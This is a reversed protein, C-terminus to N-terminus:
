NNELPKNKIKCRVVVRSEGDLTCTFLTLDWNGSLLEDMKDGRIKEIDAVEYIFHNNSMDVFEVRDGRDLRYLYGFHAKYNHALIIMNNEYISGKFRAPSIRILPYSWESMIPLDLSLKEIKLYGIYDYGNIQKIPMEMKPNDIYRNQQNSDNEVNEKLESVIKKTNEGVEYDERVNYTLFILAILICAAGFYFYINKRFM